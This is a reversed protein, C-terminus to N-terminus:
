TRYWFDLKSDLEHQTIIAPCLYKHKESRLKQIVEKGVPNSIPGSFFSGVKRYAETIDEDNFEGDNNKIKFFKQFKNRYFDESKTILEHSKIIFDEPVRRARESNRRLATKLNTEIYVMTTDYGLSELIGVRLLLNNPSVSTGDIILPLMSNIYNKLSEKNLLYIKDEYSKWLNDANEDTDLKINLKKGYYEFFRDTNVVRPHISGDTIKRFTYSKGAGPTGALFMAKLIGKDEISESLLYDKFGM